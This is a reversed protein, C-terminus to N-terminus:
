SRFIFSLFFTNRLSSTRRRVSYHTECVAKCWAKPMASSLAPMQPYLCYGQFVKVEVECTRVIESAKVTVEEFRRSIQRDDGHSHMMSKRNTDGWIATFRASLPWVVRYLFHGGRSAKWPACLEGAIPYTLTTKKRDLIFPMKM